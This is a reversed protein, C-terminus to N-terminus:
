VIAVLKPDKINLFLRCALTFTYKKALLHVKIIVKQDEEKVYDVSSSSSSSWYMDLHQKTVEDMVRIYRHLADPKLFLSLVKRLRISEQTTDTKESNAFIKEFNAPWWSKVLKNENSFLFKNGAATYLVAM